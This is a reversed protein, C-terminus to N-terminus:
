IRDKVLEKKLESLKNNIENMIKKSASKKSFAFFGLSKYNEQEQHLKNNLLSIEKDIKEKQEKHQNWYNEIALHKIKSIIIQYNQIIKQKEEIVKPKLSSYRVYIPIDLIGISSIGDFKYSCSNITMEHIEIALEMLQIQLSNITIIDLLSEICNTIDTCQEIFTEFAYQTQESKKTGFKEQVLLFANELTSCILEYTGELDNDAYIDFKSLYEYVLATDKHLTDATKKSVFNLIQKCALDILSDSFLLFKCYIKEEPYNTSDLETARILCNYAEKIRPKVTTSQYAVAIGKIFWVEALTNNVELIKNAVTEAHSYNESSIDHRVIELNNELNIENYNLKETNIVNYNNSINKINTIDKKNHYKSGCHNCIGNGNKDIEITAGCKSCKLVEIM